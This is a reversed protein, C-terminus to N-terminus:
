EQEERMTKRKEHYHLRDTSELMHVIQGMKPRQLADPDVCRLAVLLVSKLAKSSPQYPMKPDGIENYRQTETLKKLWDVLSMEESSERFSSPSRGSVIEMVLVGFSYVDSRDNLIGTCAYEPAVYGYTGIVRTEVHSMDSDLIRSLGFDALKPNWHQDLLINCSKVDRHVIKHELGEHLYSLAKAIGIMIDLRMDWTLPSHRMVDRHLWQHLNGNDVYEYVLVRSSGDLCYGIFTVSNKHRIRWLAEVEAIFDNTNFWKVAVMTGDRLVGRYVIGYQGEGIINDDSFIDTAESIERATFRHARRALPSFELPHSSVVSLPRETKDIDIHVQPVLPVSNVTNQLNPNKPYSGARYEPSKRCSICCCLFLILFFVTGLIAFVWLKMSFFFPLKMALISGLKSLYKHVTDISLSAM